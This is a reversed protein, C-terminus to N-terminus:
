VHARGIQYRPLVAFNPDDTYNPQVSRGQFIQWAQQANPLSSDAAAALGIQLNAPFGTPSSPYGVMEGLQYTSGELTSLANVMPQTNCSLGTLTPFNTQYVSTFSPLMKGSSDLVQPDYASALLWCYGQTGNSLWDTMLGIQFLSSWNRLTGAGSWGEEALHGTAWTFFDDQWPAIGNNTGGNVSYPYGGPVIHLVNTSDNTYRQNFDAIANTIDATFEAKMPDADPAFYAADGISRM